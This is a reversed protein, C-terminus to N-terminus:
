DGCHDPFPCYKCERDGKVYDCLPMNSDICDMYLNDIRQMIKEVRDDDREITFEFLESNNKNKILIKGADTNFMKEHMYMLCQGIASPYVKKLTEIDDDVLRPNGKFDRCLFGSLGKVELVYNKKEETSYMIGDPHGVIAYYRGNPLMRLITRDEEINTVHIGPAQWLYETITRQHHKGDNLLMLLNALAESTDARLGHPEGRKKLFLARRCEGLESVHFIDPTHQRPVKIKELRLAQQMIMKKLEM